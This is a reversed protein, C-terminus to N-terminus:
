TSNIVPYDPLDALSVTPLKSSTGTAGTVIPFFLSVASSSALFETSGEYVDPLKAPAVLRSSRYSGSHGELESCKESTVSAYHM